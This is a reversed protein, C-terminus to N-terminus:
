LTCAPGSVVESHAHPGWFLVLISLLACSPGPIVKSQLARRVVESHAHTGRLLKLIYM